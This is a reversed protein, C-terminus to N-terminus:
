ESWGPEPRDWLLEDMDVEQLRPCEYDKVLEALPGNQQWTPWVGTGAEALPPNETAGSHSAPRCWIENFAGM